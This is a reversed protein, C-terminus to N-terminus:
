YFTVGTMVSDLMSQSEKFTNTEFLYGGHTFWVEYTAGLVSDQSYFSAGTAGAVQINKLNQRVGSPVDEKFREETIQGSSFPVVFIQFGSATKKDLYEFTVTMSGGAEPFEHVTYMDSYLLSIGYTDNHYEKFGTPVYREPATKKIQSATTTATDPLSFAVSSSNAHWFVWCLGAGILALILIGLFYYRRDM